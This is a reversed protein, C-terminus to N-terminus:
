SVTMNPVSFRGSQQALRAVSAHMNFKNKCQVMNKACHTAVMQKQQQKHQSSYVWRAGVCSIHLHCCNVGELHAWLGGSNGADM